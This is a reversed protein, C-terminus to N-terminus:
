VGEWGNRWNYLNCLLCSATDKLPCDHCFDKIATLVETYREEYDDEKELEVVEKELQTVREALKNGM